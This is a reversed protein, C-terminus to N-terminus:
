VTEWKIRSDREILRGLQMHAPILLADEQLATKTLTNKSRLNTEFDAWSAMASPNEVEVFDHFLDGLCYLTEGDSNLRAIQHGPTEGPAPVIAFEPFLEIEGSTVHLVGADRLVGLSNSVESGPNKLSEQTETRDWDARNLFYTANPFSPQFKGETNKRTVGAYHDFHAHTIVVHSVNSLSIGSSELQAFIGQPPIYNPPSYESGPPSSLSYDNPDVIISAKGPLSIHVTLSPFLRVTKVFEDYSSDWHSQVNMIDALRIALEGNNFTSVTAVGVPVKKLSNEESQFSSGKWYM